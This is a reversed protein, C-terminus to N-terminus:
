ESAYTLVAFVVLALAATVAVLLALTGVFRAIGARAAGGARGLTRQHEWRARRALALSVLALIAGVPVGAIVEWLELDASVSAAAAAGVLAALALVATLLAWSARPNGL